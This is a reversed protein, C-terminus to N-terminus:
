AVAVDDGVTEAEAEAEAEAEVDADSVSEGAAGLPKLVSGLPTLIPM